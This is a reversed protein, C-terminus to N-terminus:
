PTHTKTHWVVKDGRYIALQGNNRLRLYSTTTTAPNSSRWRVTGSKDVVALRGDKGMVLRGGRAEPSTRTSWVIGDQNAIVFDGDSQLYAKTHRNPAVLRQGTKRYQGEHLVARGEKFTVLRPYTNAKTLCPANHARTNNDTASSKGCKGPYLEWPPRCSIQRCVVATTGKVQTNCQGYRFVNCAVYRHDCNSKNCRCHFHHGPKANCDIYYRAAGGCFSSRDAKWWGGAFTNPPCTNHGKNISCCMASWGADCTAGPGCVSAYANQPKTLYDWPNVALATGALTATTLFSRRSPRRNGLQALRNVIRESLPTSTTM